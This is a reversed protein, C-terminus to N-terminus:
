FENGDGEDLKGNDGLLALLTKNRTTKEAAM